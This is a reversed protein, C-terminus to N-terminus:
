GKPRALTVRFDGDPDTYVGEVSFGAAVLEGDLADHRFKTSIETRIEEGDAFDLTLGLGTVEVRQDALSRLRM